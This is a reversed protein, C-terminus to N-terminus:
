LNKNFMIYLIIIRRLIFLINFMLSWKSQTDLGYYLAGYSKISTTSELTDSRRSIMFLLSVPVIFLCVFSFFYSIIFSFRDGATVQISGKYNLYCSLLIEIYGEFFILFLDNLIIVM